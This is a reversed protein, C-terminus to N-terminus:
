ETLAKYLVNEENSKLPFLEPFIKGETNVEFQLILAILFWHIWTMKLRFITDEEAAKGFAISLRVLSFIFIFILIRYDSHELRHM